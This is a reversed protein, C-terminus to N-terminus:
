LEKLMGRLDDLSAENLEGEEKRAIAAMIKDKKQKRLIAETAAKAADKKVKIVHLVLDFMLDILEDSKREDDVFSKIENKSKKQYLETALSDLSINKTSKLPLDWLQETTLLGASVPIRLKIKSAEEFINKDSM